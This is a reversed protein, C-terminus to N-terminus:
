GSTSNSKSENSNAATSASTPNPLSGFRNKVLHGRYMVVPTGYYAQRSVETLRSEVSGPGPVLDSEDILLCDVKKM